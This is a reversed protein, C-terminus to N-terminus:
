VGDAGLGGIVTVPSNGAVTSLVTHLDILVPVDIGFRIQM